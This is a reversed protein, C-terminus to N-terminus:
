YQPLHKSLLTWTESGVVGDPNLKNEEQFKKIAEKTQGGIVGDIEGTYVGANKLCAQIEKANPLRTVVKEEKAKELAKQTEQISTATKDQTEKVQAELNNQKEQLSALSEEQQNIQKELSIIRLQVGELDQTTACGAIFLLSILTFIVSPRM